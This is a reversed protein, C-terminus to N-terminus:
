IRLSNGRGPLAVMDAVDDDGVRRPKRLVEAAPAMLM